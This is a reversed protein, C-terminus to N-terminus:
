LLLGPCICINAISDRVTVLVDVQLCRHSHSNRLPTLKQPGIVEGHRIIGVYHAVHVHIRMLGSSGSIAKLHHLLEMLLLLLLRLLVIIQVM